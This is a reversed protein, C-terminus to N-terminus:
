VITFDGDDDATGRGLEKGDEDRVIVTSGAEATGTIPGTGDALDSPSTVVPKEPAETDIDVTTETPKSTNGVKDQAVVELEHDGDTLPRDLEVTWDGNDDATGRGLE